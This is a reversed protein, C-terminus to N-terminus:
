GVSSEVLTLRGPFDHLPALEVMNPLPKGGSKRDRVWKLLLPSRHGEDSRIGCDAALDHLAVWGSSLPHDVLEAIQPHRVLFSNLQFVDGATDVTCAHLVGVLEAVAVASSSGCAYVFCLPKRLPVEFDQIGM